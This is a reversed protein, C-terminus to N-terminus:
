AVQCQDASLKKLVGFAQEANLDFDQMLMGKAEEIVRMGELQQQRQVLQERLQAIEERLQGVDESGSSSALAAAM